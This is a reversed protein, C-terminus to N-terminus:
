PLEHTNLVLTLIIWENIKLACRWYTGGLLVLISYSSLTSIRIIGTDESDMWKYLWVYKKISTPSELQLVLSLSSSTVTITSKYPCLTQPSLVQSFISHRFTISIGNSISPIFTYEMFPDLRVSKSLLHRSPRRHFFLNLFSTSHIHCRWIWPSCHTMANGLGLNDTWKSTQLFFCVSIWSKLSKQVTRHVYLSRLKDQWSTSRTCILSFLVFNEYQSACM